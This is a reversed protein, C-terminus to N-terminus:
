GLSFPIKIEAFTLKMVNSRPVNTIFVPNLFGMDCCRRSMDPFRPALDPWLGPREGRSRTVSRM